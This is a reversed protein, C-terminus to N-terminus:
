PWSSSCSWRRSRQNIQSHPPQPLLLPFPPQSLAKELPPPLVMSTLPLSHQLLTNMCWDYMLFTYSYPAQFLNLSSSHRPAASHRLAEYKHRHTNSGKRWVCWCRPGRERKGGLSNASNTLAIPLIRTHRTRTTHPKTSTYIHTHTHIHRHRHSLLHLHRPDHKVCSM